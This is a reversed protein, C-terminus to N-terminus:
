QGLEVLVKETEDSEEDDVEGEWPEVENENM